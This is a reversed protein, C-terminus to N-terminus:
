DDDNVYRREWRTGFGTLLEYGVTGAKKAADDLLIKQGILEVPAGPYVHRRDVASVDLTILDMSVQGVIPVRINALSAEGRNGLARPIGDAYGVGITALRAPAEIRRTAGYGVTTDKTVEQVQLVPAELTVVVEMPNPAKLFPNGGYLAIGPRVLDGRYEEGTLLGASNGISTKAVPLRGCFREFVDIQERNMPHSPDDACALHTMVYAIQLGNLVRADLAVQNLERRDLGLRTMGTDIHIVAPYRKADAVETWRVIQEHSNLAPILSAERLRREEGAQAGALVYIAPTAFQQRLELGESVTAVFFQRCGEDFLRQAVPKVGLGYANAKVVAGCKSPAATQRLLRYNRALADLNVTLLSSSPSTTSSTVRRDITTRPHPWLQSDPRLWEVM